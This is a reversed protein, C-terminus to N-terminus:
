SLKGYIAFCSKLIKVGSPTGYIATKEMYLDKFGSDKARKLFLFVNEKRVYRLIERGAAKQRKTIPHASMLLDSMARSSAKPAQLKTEVLSSEAKEESKAKRWEDLYIVNEM